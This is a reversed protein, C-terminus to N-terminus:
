QICIVSSQLSRLSEQCSLSTRGPTCTYGWTANRIDSAWFQGRGVAPLVERFGYKEGAKFAALCPLYGGIRECAKTAESEVVTNDHDTGNNTYLGRFNSWITNDPGQWAEGANEWYVKTYAYGTSTGCTFGIPARRLEYYSYETCASIQAFLTGSNGLFLILIIINFRFIYNFKM